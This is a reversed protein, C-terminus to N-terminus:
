NQKTTNKGNDKFNKIQKGVSCFEISKWVISSVFIRGKAYWPAKEECRISSVLTSTQNISKHIIVSTIILWNEKKQAWEIEIIKAITAFTKMSIKWKFQIRPNKLVGCTKWNHNRTFFNTWWSFNRFETNTNRFIFIKVITTRIENMKTLTNRPKFLPKIRNTFLKVDSFFPQRITTLLDLNQIRDFLFVLNELPFQELNM